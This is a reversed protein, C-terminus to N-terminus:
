LWTVSKPTQNHLTRDRHMVPVIRGVAAGVALGVLVDTPFHKGAEVRQLATYAPLALAGAWIWPTYKSNPHLDSWVTAAFVANCAAISSHGSFFSAQADSSQWLEEPATSGPYAYPRARGTTKKAWETLGYTHLNAELCMVGLTWSRTWFGPSAPILPTSVAWGMSAGLAGDSRRAASVSYRGSFPRDLINLDDSNLNNRSNIDLLPKDKLFGSVGTQVLATGLIWGDTRAHLAYPFPTGTSGSAHLTSFLIVGAVTTRGLAKFRAFGNRFAASRM